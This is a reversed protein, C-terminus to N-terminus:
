HIKPFIVSKIKGKKDDIKVIAFEGHHISGCNVSITKGVKDKGKSEEVHGCLHLIPQYKEVIRKFLKGGCHKNKALKHADKAKILDLKTKYLPTHTVFILKGEKNEKSFRKFIKELKRKSRAYAKSKVRGPFSHGRGGVFVYDGFKFYSYDIKNVNSLRNMFKSFHDKSNWDWDWADKPKRIDMIDDALPRDHNGIVSVVKVSLKDLKKLVNEGKKYDNSRMEIYKKKGLIEKDWLNKEEHGYVYKFYIKGMSFPPYDGVSVVLDIKKKQIISNIKLPFKGHFDGVVLLKM